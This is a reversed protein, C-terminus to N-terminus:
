LKFPRSFVIQKLKFISIMYRISLEFLLNRIYLFFRSIDMVRIKTKM